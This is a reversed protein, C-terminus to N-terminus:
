KDQKEIKVGLLDKIKKDLYIDLTTILTDFDLHLIRHGLNEITKRLNHVYSDELLSYNKSGVFLAESYSKDILQENGFEDKIKDMGMENKLSGLKECKPDNTRYKKLLEPFDTLKIDTVICDTDIYYINGDM